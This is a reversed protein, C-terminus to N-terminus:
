SFIPNELSQSYQFNKALAGTWPGQGPGHGLEQGLNQLAGYSSWLPEM